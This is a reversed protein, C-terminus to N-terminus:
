QISHKIPISNIYDECGWLIAAYLDIRGISTFFSEPNSYKPLHELDCLLRAISGITFNSDALYLDLAYHAYKKDGHGHAIMITVFVFLKLYADVSKTKLAFCPSSTKSHDMRDHMICLVQM